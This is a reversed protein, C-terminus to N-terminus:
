KLVVTGFLNSGDVPVVDEIVQDAFGLQAPSLKSTFLFDRWSFGFFHLEKNRRRWDPPDTHLRQIFALAGSQSLSDLQDPNLIGVTGEPLTWM